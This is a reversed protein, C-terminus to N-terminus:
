NYKMKRDKKNCVKLYVFGLQLFEIEKALNYKNKLVNKNVYKVFNTNFKIVIEQKYCRHTHTHTHTHLIRM